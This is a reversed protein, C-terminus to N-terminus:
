KVGHLLRQLTTLVLVDAAPLQPVSMTRSDVFQLGPEVRQVNCLNANTM